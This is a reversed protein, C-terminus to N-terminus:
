ESTRTYLLRVFSRDGPMVRVAHLLEMVGDSTDTNVTFGDDYWTSGDPSWQPTATVDSVDAGKPYTMHVENGVREVVVGPSDAERPHTVHYREGLTPNNDGDEDAEDGWVSAELGPDGLEASSFFSELWTQYPGAGVLWANVQFLGFDFWRRAGSLSGGDTYVGVATIDSFDMTAFVANDQDFDWTTVPDFPAWRGDDDDAAFVWEDNRELTDESLYFQDGERVLWRVQGLADFKGVDGMKLYSGSRFEVPKDAGGNYFDAKDFFLITWMRGSAGSSVQYRLDFHDSFVNDDVYHDAFRNGTQNLAEARMGGYLPQLFYNPGDALPETLSFAFEAWSDDVAGDEDLDADVNIENDDRFSLRADVIEDRWDVILAQQEGPGSSPNLVRVIETAQDAFDDEDTVGLTVRYPGPQTFVNQVITGADTNGDDFNWLYSILIGDPDSSSGADFTVSLPAEGILPSASLSANPAANTPTPGTEVIDFHDFQFRGGDYTPVIRVSHTQEPLLGSDFVLYQYKDRADAGVKAFPTAYDDIFVYFSPFSYGSVFMRIRTGTFVYELYSNGAQIVRRSTGETDLAHNRTSWGGGGYLIAPDQDSIQRRDGVELPWPASEITGGLDDTAVAVIEYLGGAVSPLTVEYPATSDAGWSIGNAFFEVGTVTRGSGPYASAKLTLSTGPKHLVIGQRDLVVYRETAQRHAQQALFLDAPDPVVGEDAILNGKDGCVMAWACSTDQSAGQIGVLAGESHADPQYVYLGKPSNEDDSGDGPLLNVNWHVVNKGVFPGFDAAGGPGGTNILEIDTRITDFSMFRHSDFTGTQMNGDRSVNGTALDEVSIGHRIPQDIFFDELLSDHGRVQTLGHHINAEGTITVDRFTLNKSSRSLIANESDIIHVNKIWCHIAKTFYFANWGDYFNHPTTLPTGEMVVSLDEVGTEYIVPGLPEFGVEWESRIDIRLPQALTVDNGEISLIEVPWQWQTRNFLDTAGAWDFNEMLPHGAIHKALSYDGEEAPNKWALLYTEGAQLASADDVTVTRAGRTPTNTVNALRPGEWLGSGSWWTTWDNGFPKEVSAQNLDGNVLVQEPSIWILGGQWSWRSSGSGTIDQGITDKLSQRFLIRTQGPGAGRLVVGPYKLFIVGNVFFDGAPVFVAGGEALWAAELAARFADTNDTVGDGVAGYDTVNVVVPLVPLDVDSRRYGAFSNNPLNPHDDPDAVYQQWIDNGTLSLTGLVNSPAAHASAAGPQHEPHDCFLGCPDEYTDEESVNGDPVTAVWPAAVVTFPVLAAVVTTRLCNISSKM